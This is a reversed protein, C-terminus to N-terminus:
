PIPTPWTAGAWAAGFFAGIKAILAYRHENVFGKGLDDVGLVIYWRGTGAPCEVIDPGPSPSGPWDRIDTLAPLLLQASPTGTGNDQAWEGPFVMVRRGFALNCPSSLRFVKDNFQNPSGATYIDCTLNFDPLTFAM